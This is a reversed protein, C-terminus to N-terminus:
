AALSSLAAPSPGGPPAPAPALSAVLNSRMAAREARNIVLQQVRQMILEPADASVASNVWSDYAVANAATPAKVFKRLLYHKRNMWYAKAPGSAVVVTPHARMLAEEISQRVSEYEVDSLAAIRAQIEARSSTM